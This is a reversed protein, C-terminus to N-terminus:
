EDAVASDTSALSRAAIVGPEDSRAVERIDLRCVRKVHAQVYTGDHNGM